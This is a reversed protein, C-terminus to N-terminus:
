FSGRRRRGLLERILLIFVLDRFPGGRFQQAIIDEGDLEDSADRMELMVRSCIEDAMREVAHRRPCPYFDPNSSTDYMECMQRVHPYVQYYVSPYMDELREPCYTM